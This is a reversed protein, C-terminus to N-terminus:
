YIEQKKELNILKKKKKKLRMMQIMKIKIKMKLIVKKLIIKKM